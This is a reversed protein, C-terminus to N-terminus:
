EMAQEVEYVAGSCNVIKNLFLIAADKTVKLTDVMNLEYDYLEFIVQDSTDNLAADFQGLEKQLNSFHLKYETWEAMTILELGGVPITNKEKICLIELICMGIKPMLGECNSCIGKQSVRNVKLWHCPEADSYDLCAREDDCGCGICTAVNALNLISQLLKEQAFWALPGDDTDNICLLFWGDPNQPIIDWASIDVNENEFYEISAPCTPYNALREVRIHYKAKFEETLDGDSNQVTIQDYEPHLWYGEVDRKIDKYPINTIM